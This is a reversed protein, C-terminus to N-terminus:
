KERPFVAIVSPLPHHRQGSGDVSKAWPTVELLGKFSRLVEPAVLVDSSSGGDFALAQHIEPLGAKLCAAVDWLSSEGVTKILLVTGNTLEAIVTQQAQRGSRRVRPKGQRDVLMLSQAVERYSPREESFDDLALDLIGALKGGPALPEAVFLGRWSRHRKGGISRGDKLLLGLYTYDELFQGANFLITAGTRQQWEMITPPESFGEGRFYFTAFRFQVPDMKLLVLPVVAEQCAEKPEWVAITFGEGLSSWHIDPPAAPANSIVLGALAFAPLTLLGRKWGNM